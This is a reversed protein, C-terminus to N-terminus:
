VSVGLWRSPCGDHAGDPSCSVKTLSTSPRTKRSCGSMKTISVSGAVLSSAMLRVWVSSLSYSGAQDGSPAFIAKEPTLFLPQSITVISGSPWFSAFKVPSPNSPFSSAGSHDGSPVFTTNWFSLWTPPHQSGHSIQATFRSPLPPVLRVLSGRSSMPGDHDGSPVSIVKVLLRSAVTSSGKRVSM